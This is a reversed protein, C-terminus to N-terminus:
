KKDEYRIIHANDELAPLFWLMMIIGVSVIVGEIIGANFGLHIIFWNYGILLIIMLLFKRDSIEKLKVQIEKEM